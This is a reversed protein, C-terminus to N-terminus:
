GEKNRLKILAARDTTLSGTKKSFQKKFGLQDYLLTALQKPSRVNVEGFEKELIEQRSRLEQAIEDKVKPDVRMGRLQMKLLIPMLKMVYGFFFDRMGLSVLEEELRDAV